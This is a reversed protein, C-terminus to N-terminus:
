CVWQGELMDLCIWRGFVNKHEFYSQIEVRPARAPYQDPIIMILHFACDEYSSGPPGVMNAHWEFLNEDSIPQASIMDLPNEKCEEWDSLIRNIAFRKIAAPSCNSPGTALKVHFRGDKDKIVSSLDRSSVITEGEHEKDIDFANRPSNPRATNTTNSSM